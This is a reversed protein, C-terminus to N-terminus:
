FRATLQTTINWANELESIIYNGTTQLTFYLSFDWGWTFGFNNFTDYESTNFQYNLTVNTKATRLMLYDATMSLSQTQGQDEDGYVATGNAGFSLVESPRWSINLISTGTSGSTRQRDHFSIRGVYNLQDAM